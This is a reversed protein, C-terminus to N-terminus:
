IPPKSLAIRVPNIQEPRSGPRWRFGLRKFHDAHTASSRNVGGFESILHSWASRTGPMATNDILIGHPAVRRKIEEVIEIMRARVKDAGNVRTKPLGESIFAIESTTLQPSENWVTQEPPFGGIDNVLLSFMSLADNRRVMMGAPQHRCSKLASESKPKSQLTAFSAHNVPLHMGSPQYAYVSLVTDHHQDCYSDPDSIMRALRPTNLLGSSVVPLSRLPLYKHEGLAIVLSM